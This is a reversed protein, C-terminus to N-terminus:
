NRRIKHVATGSPKEKEQGTQTHFSTVYIVVPDAYLVSKLTSLKLFNAM